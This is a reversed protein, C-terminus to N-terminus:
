IQLVDQNTYVGIAYLYQGSRGFFGVIRGNNQTQIHFPTGRGKGFPGYSRTNTVFTLSTVVNTLNKFPGSTGSVGTLFESPGLEIQLLFLFLFLFLIEIECVFIRRYLCDHATLRYHSQARGGQLSIL